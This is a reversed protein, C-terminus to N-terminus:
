EEEVVIVEHEGRDEELRVPSQFRIWRAGRLKYYGSARKVARTWGLRERRWARAAAMVKGGGAQMSSGSSPVAVWVEDLRLQDLYIVLLAVVSAAASAAWFVWFRAGEPGYRGEIALVGAVISVPLLVGGLYAIRDLSRENAIAEDDDDRRRPPYDDGHHRHRQSSSSSTVTSSTALQVRLQVRRSFDTWAAVASTHELPHVAQRLQQQRSYFRADDLNRELMAIYSWLLRLKRGDGDDGLSLAGIRAAWREYVIEALVEELAISDQACDVASALEDDLASVRAAATAAHRQPSVHHHRAVTGYRGGDDGGGRQLGSRRTAADQHRLRPASRYSRRTVPELPTDVLLVPVPASLWLAARRMVARGGAQTEEEPYRWVCWRAARSSVCRPRYPRGSLCELFGGDVGALSCLADSVDAADAADGRLVILQEVGSPRGGLLESRLNEVTDLRHRHHRSQPTWELVYGLPTINDDANPPLPSSPKRRRQSM